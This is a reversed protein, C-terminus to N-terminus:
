AATSALIDENLPAILAEVAQKEILRQRHDRPNRIAQLEGSRVRRTITSPHVDLLEAAQRSTVLRTAQETRM